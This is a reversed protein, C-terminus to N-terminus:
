LNRVGRFARREVPPLALELSQSALVLPPDHYYRSGQCARYPEPVCIVARPALGLRRSVRLM